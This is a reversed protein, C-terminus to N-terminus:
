INKLRMKSVIYENMLKDTEKRHLGDMRGHNEIEM